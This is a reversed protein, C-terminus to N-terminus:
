IGIFKARERDTMNLMQTNQQQQQEYRPQCQLLLNKTAVNKKKQLSNQIHFHEM